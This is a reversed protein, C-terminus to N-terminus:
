AVKSPMHTVAMEDESVVCDGEDAEEESDHDATYHAWPRKEAHPSRPKKLASAIHNLCSRLNSCGCGEAAM